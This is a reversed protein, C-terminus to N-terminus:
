PRVTPSLGLHFEWVPKPEKDAVGFGALFSFTIASLAVMYGTYTDQIKMGPVIYYLSPLPVLLFGISVAIWLVFFRRSGYVVPISLRVIIGRRIENIL